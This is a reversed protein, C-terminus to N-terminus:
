SGVEWTGDEHVCAGHPLSYLATIMRQERDTLEPSRSASSSMLGKAEDTHGLFGLAHGLEHRYLFPCWHTPADAMCSRGGGPAIAVIESLMSNDSNTQDGRAWGDGTPTIADLGFRILVRPLVDAWITVWSIGAEVRWYELADTVHDLERGDQVYVRVPLEWRSIIFPRGSRQSNWNIIDRAAQVDAIRGSAHTGPPLVLPSPRSPVSPTSGCGAFVYVIAVTSLVLRSIYRQM